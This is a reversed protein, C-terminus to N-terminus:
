NCAECPTRVETCISPPISICGSCTERCKYTAGSRYSKNCGECIYRKSMAGTLNAIVHYHREVDDYFLIVRKESTVQGEFIIDECIPGGYVVIKYETFHDQFRQIQPNGGGNQLDIGTTELLHQVVPRIRYGRRYSKYNPDNTLRAIAIILAHALCNTKTKVKIISKKVHATVSLSRGRSKNSKRWFGVPMKVSHVVVILRDMANYRAKSQAVKSFVSWIVEESLQDKRRFSIGIAKDLLNVENHVTVVVMDSDGVNRLAYDFLDNESAQFHTVADSNDGVVPPLLRVTLETGRANFRSYQRNTESDITFRPVVGDDSAM